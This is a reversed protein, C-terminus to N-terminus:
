RVPTGTGTLTADFAVPIAYGIGTLTQTSGQAARIQEPSLGRRSPDAPDDPNPFLQVIQVLRSANPFPLPRFVTGYVVSFVATTAGIGLGLTLVATATFGPSRRLARVAFRCDRWLAELM